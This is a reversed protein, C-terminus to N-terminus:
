ERRDSLEPPPRVLADVIWKDLPTARPGQDTAYLRCAMGFDTREDAGPEVDHGEVRVTPSGLFREHVAASDDPVNRLQVHAHVGARRLLDDLRALLAEYHPCGDVYLLEVSRAPATDVTGVRAMEPL